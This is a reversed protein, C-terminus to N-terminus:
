QWIDQAWDFDPLVAADVIRRSEEVAQLRRPEDLGMLHTSMGALEDENSASSGKEVVDNLESILIWPLMRIWAGVGGMASFAPTGEGKRVNEMISPTVVKRWEDVFIYPQELLWHITPDKAMIRLVLRLSVAPALELSADGEPLLSSTIGVIRKMTQEAVASIVHQISQFYNYFSGYGVKAADTIDAVTTNAVGKRQFTEAAAVLIKRRTDQRRRAQKNPRELELV